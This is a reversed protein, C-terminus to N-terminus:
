REKHGQAVATSLCGSARSAEEGRERERMERERGRSGWIAAGAAPRGQWSRRARAGDLM